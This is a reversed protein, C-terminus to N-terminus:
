WKRLVQLLRIAISHGFPPWCFRMLSFRHGTVPLCSSRSYTYIRVETFLESWSLWLEQRFASLDARGLFLVLALPVLSEQFKHQIHVFEVIRVAPGVAM